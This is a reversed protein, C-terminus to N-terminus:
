DGFECLYKWVRLNETYSFKTEYQEIAGDCLNRYLNWDSAMHMIGMSWGGLNESDEILYGCQSTVIEKNFGVDSALLPLGVSLYQVLKFGGKGLTFRNSVLPMIGVHAYAMEQQARKREWKINELTLYKAKYCLPKNCVIKLVLEKGLQERLRFAAKDIEGVVREMYVLNSATAVWVLILKKLYNEKRNALLEETYLGQMDGDTTPMLYVKDQYPVSVLSKLFDSTVIITSSYRSLFDFELRSISRVELINDDFDWILRNKQLIRRLLWLHLYSIYHPMIYRSVIVIGHRLTISDMILFLLTRIFVILFVLPSYCVRENNKLAHWWCFMRNSFLSHVQVREKDILYQLIRYYGSPEIGESNVYVSIRKKAKM